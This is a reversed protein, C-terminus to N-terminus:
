VHVKSFMHSCILEVIRWLEHKFNQPLFQNCIKINRWETNLNNWSNIVRRLTKLLSNLLSEWIYYQNHRISSRRGPPRDFQYLQGMTRLCQRQTYSSMSTGHDPLTCKTWLQLAQRILHTPTINKRSDRRVSAFLVVRIVQAKITAAIIIKCLVMQLRTINFM